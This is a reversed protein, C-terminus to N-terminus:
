APVAQQLSSATHTHRFTRYPGKRMTDTFLAGREHEEVEARHRLGVTCFVGRANLHDVLRPPSGGAHEHSTM